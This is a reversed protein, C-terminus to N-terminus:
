KIVRQKVGVIMDFLYIGLVMPFITSPTLMFGIYVVFPLYFIVVLIAISIIECIVTQRKTLVNKSVIILMMFIFIAYFLVPVILSPTLDYTRVTLWDIYNATLNWLLSMLAPFCVILGMFVYKKM